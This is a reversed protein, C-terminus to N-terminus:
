YGYWPPTYYPGSTPVALSGANIAMPTIYGQAPSPGTNAQTPYGPIYGGVGGATTRTTSEVAPINFSEGFIGKLIQSIFGNQRIYGFREGLIGVAAAVAGFQTIQVPGLRLQGSLWNKTQVVWNHIQSGLAVGAYDTAIDVYGGAAGGFAPDLHRRGRRGRRRTPDLKRHGRKKTHHRKPHYAGKKKGAWYRKLGAPMRGKKRHSKAGKKPPDYLWKRKRAPDFEADVPNLLDEPYRAQIPLEESIAYEQEQSL